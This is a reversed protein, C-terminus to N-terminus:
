PVQNLLRDAQSLVKLDVALVLVSFVMENEDLRTNVTQGPEDM